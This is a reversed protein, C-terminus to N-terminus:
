IDEIIKEMILENSEENEDELRISEVTQTDDESDSSMYVRDKKKEEVLAEFLEINTIDVEEWVGNIIANAEWPPNDMYSDSYFEEWFKEVDKVSNVHDMDIRDYVFDVLKELITDKLKDEEIMGFFPLVYPRKYDPHASLIVFPILDKIGKNFM